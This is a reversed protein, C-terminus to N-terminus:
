KEKISYNNLLTIYYDTTKDKFQPAIHKPMDGIVDNSMCYPEESLLTIGTSKIYRNIVNLYLKNREHCFTEYIPGHAYLCTVNNKKCLIALKKLYYFKERNVENPFWHIKLNSFDKKRAQIVYDNRIRGNIDVVNKKGYVIKNIRAIVSKIVIDNSLLLPVAYPLSESEEILMTASDGLLVAAKKGEGISNRPISVNQVILIKKAGKNVAQKAMSYSGGYGFAGTLCLSMVNENFSKSMRDADIAFGGSSDGVIAMDIHDTNKLKDKQYGILKTYEFGIMGPEDQLIYFSNVALLVLVVVSLIFVLM